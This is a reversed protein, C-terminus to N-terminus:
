SLLTERMKKLIAKEKRSVQAQTMSLLEATKSQTMALFYRCRVIRKETEDLKAMGADVTLRDTVADETSITAIDSEKM